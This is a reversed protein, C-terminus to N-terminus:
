PPGDIDDVVFDRTDMERVVLAQTETEFDVGEVGIYDEGQDLFSTVGILAGGGILIPVGMLLLIGGIILAVTKGSDWGRTEPKRYRVRPTRVKAGCHPCYEVDDNIEKGCERCYL